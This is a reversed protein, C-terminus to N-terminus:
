VGTLYNDLELAPFGGAHFPIIDELIGNLHPLKGGLTIIEGM